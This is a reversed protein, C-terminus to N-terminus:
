RLSLPLQSPQAVTLPAAAAAAACQVTALCAAAAAGAATELLLASPVGEQALRQLLKAAGECLEAHAVLAPPSIHPPRCRRRLRCGIARGLQSRSADADRDRARHRRWAILQFPTGEGALRPGQLGNADLHVLCGLM